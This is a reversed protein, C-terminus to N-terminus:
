WRDPRGAGALLAGGQPWAELWVSGKGDSRGGPAEQVHMDSHAWHPYSGATNNSTLRTVAALM